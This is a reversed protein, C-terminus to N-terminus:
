EILVEKKLAILLISILSFFIIIVFLMNATLSISVLYFGTFIIILFYITDIFIYLLGYLIGVFCYWTEKNLNEVYHDIGKKYFKILESSAYLTFLQKSNINYHKFVFAKILFDQIIYFINRLFLSLAIMLVQFHFYTISFKSKDYFVNLYQDVRSTIQNNESSFILALM